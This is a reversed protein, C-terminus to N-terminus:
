GAAAAVIVKAPRIVRDYLLYGTEVTALVTMPPHDASPQQMVAEHRNPDFPAGEARVAEVGHKALADLFQRHVIQLGQVMTEAEPQGRASDLARELNDVAPLLEKVFPMPAYKRESEMDRRVRSQYNEFDARTRRALELYKDREAELAAYKDDTPAEPTPEAAAEPETTEPEKETM